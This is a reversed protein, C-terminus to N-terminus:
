LFCVYMAMRSVKFSSACGRRHPEKDLVKHSTSASTKIHYHHYIVAVLFLFFATTTDRQNITHLNELFLLTRKYDYYTICM